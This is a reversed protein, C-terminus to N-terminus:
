GWYWGTNRRVNFIAGWINVTSRDFYYTLTGRIRLICYAYTGRSASCVTLEGPNTTTIVALRSPDASPGPAASVPAPTASLRPDIEHMVANTFGIYSKSRRYYENAAELALQAYSQSAWNAEEVPESRAVKISPPCTFSSGRETALACYAPKPELTRRVVGFGTGRYLEGREGELLTHFMVAEIYPRDALVRYQHLLGRAQEAETVAEAGTTTLGGETLWLPTARDDYLDRVELVDGLTKYFLADGLTRSYDHFSLGDFSGKGGNAYVSNLFGRMALGRSDNVHLNALGGLLVPMSPNVAKIAAYGSRLLETYRAPDPAPPWFAAYNPENWLEIAAAEPYRTALKALIADWADDHARGPPYRCDKLWQSCNTGPEHAWSPAYLVTLV